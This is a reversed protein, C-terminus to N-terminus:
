RQKRNKGNNAKDKAPAPKNGFLKNLVNPKGAGKRDAVLEYLPQATLCFRNDAIDDETITEVPTEVFRGVPVEDPQEGEYYAKAIYEGNAEDVFYDFYDYPKTKNHLHVLSNLTKGAKEKFEEINHYASIQDKFIRAM